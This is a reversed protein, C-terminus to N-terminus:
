SGSGFCLAAAMVAVLHFFALSTTMVGFGFPFIGHRAAAFILAFHFVGLGAAFAFVFFHFGAHLLALFVLFATAPRAVFLSGRVATALTARTVLM